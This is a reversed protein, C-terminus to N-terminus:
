AAPGLRSGAVAATLPGPRAPARDLGEEALTRAARWAPLLARLLTLVVVAAFGLALVAVNVSVGPQIEARRALGIPTLPSLAVAVVVSVAAGGVAIAAARVIPVLVLRGPGLGLAALTPNDGADAQVQRGLAQGVLLLAA